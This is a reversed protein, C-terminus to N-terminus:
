CLMLKIATTPALNVEKRQMNSDLNLNLFKYKYLIYSYRSVKFHWEFQLIPLSLIALDVVELEVVVVCVGWGQTKATTANNFTHIFRILMCLLPVTFLATSIM